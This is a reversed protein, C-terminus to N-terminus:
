TRELVLLHSLGLRKLWTQEMTYTVKRISNGLAPKRAVITAFRKIQGNAAAFDSIEHRLIDWAAFREALEDRGFLCFGRPDFMDMYTTGQVLVNVVAIGGPTVHDQLDGLVNRATACDFFM